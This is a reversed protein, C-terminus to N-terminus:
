RSRRCVSRGRRCGCSCRGPRRHVAPWRSPCRGPLCAGAAEHLLLSIPARKKSPRNLSLTATASSSKTGRRRRARYRGPTAPLGPVVLMSGSDESVVEPQPDDLIPGEPWSAGGVLMLTDNRRRGPLSPGSRCRCPPLSRRRPTRRRRRARGTVAPVSVGVVVPSMTAREDPRPGAGPVGLRRLGSRSAGPASMMM